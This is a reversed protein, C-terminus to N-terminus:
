FIFFQATTGSTSDPPELEVAAIDATLWHVRAAGKGLRKTSADIATQSIDLVTLNEYGQVFLDDVLTSEGGGVDIISASRDSAAQEILAISKELHPSYWSVESPANQEYIKEWHTRVDM